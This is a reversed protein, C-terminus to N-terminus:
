NFIYISPYYSFIARGLIASKEVFHTTNWFRSDHSNNRNDGMVFYSGEPIKIKDFNAGKEEVVGGSFYVYSSEDIPEDNIYVTGNIIELTEGPLGIVRKVYNEQPNDPYKFIIIDGRKPESFVYSLRWGIMRSHKHITKEMSGSPVTANIVIFANILFAIFGAIAIIVIWNTIEKKWNFRDKKRHKNLMKESNVTNNDEEEGWYIIEIDDDSHRDDYYNAM